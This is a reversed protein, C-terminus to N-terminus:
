TKRLFVPTFHQFAVLELHLHVQLGGDCVALPLLQSVRELAMDHAEWVEQSWKQLITLCILKTFTVSVEKARLVQSSLAKHDWQGRSSRSCIHYSPQQSADHPFVRSPLVLNLLTM